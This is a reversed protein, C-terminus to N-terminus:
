APIRGGVVMVVHCGRGPRRGARAVRRCVIVREIVAAQTHEGGLSKRERLMRRWEDRQTLSRARCTGFQCCAQRPQM